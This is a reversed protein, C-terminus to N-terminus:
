DFEAEDLQDAYPESGVYTFEGTGPDLRFVLTERGSVIDRNERVKDGKVTRGPLASWLESAAYKGGAITVTGTDSPEASWQSAGYPLVGGLPKKSRVAYADLLRAFQEATLKSDGIAQTPILGSDLLTTGPVPNFVNAVTVGTDDIKYEVYIMDTGGMFAFPFSDGGYSVQVKRVDAEDTMGRVAGEVATEVAQVEASTVDPSGDGFAMLAVFALPSMTGLVGIGVIVSLVIVWVRLRRVSATLQAIAEEVPAPREGEPRMEPM